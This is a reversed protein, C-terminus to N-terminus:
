CSFNVWKAYRISEVIEKNITFNNPGFSGHYFLSPFVCVFTCLRVTPPSHFGGFLFTLRVCLTNITCWGLVSFKKILSYCM